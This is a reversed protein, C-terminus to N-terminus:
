GISQGLQRQSHLREQPCRPGAGWVEATQLACHLGERNQAGLGSLPDM